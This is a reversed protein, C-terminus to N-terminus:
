NLVSGQEKGRYSIWLSDIQHIRIVRWTRIDGAGRSDSWNRNLHVEQFFQHSISLRDPSDRGRTLDITLHRTIHQSRDRTFSINVRVRLRQSRLRYERLCYLSKASDIDEVDRRVVHHDRANRRQEVHGIVLLNWDN